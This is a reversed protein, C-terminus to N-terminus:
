FMTLIDMRADLYVKSLVTKGGGEIANKYWPREKFAFGEPFDFDVGDYFEDFVDFYGFISNYGDLHIKKKFEDSSCEEMYTKIVAIDEGREIMGQITDAFFHLAIEPDTMEASLFERLDNITEDAHELLKKSLTKYM